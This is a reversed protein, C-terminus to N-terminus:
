FKGPRFERWTIKKLVNTWSASSLSIKAPSGTGGFRPYTLIPTTLIGSFKKLTVTCASVLLYRLNHIWFSGCLDAYCIVKWASTRLPEDHTGEGSVDASQLPLFRLGTVTCKWIQSTCKPGQSIERSVWRWFLDCLDRFTYVKVVFYETLESAKTSSVARAIENFFSRPPTIEQVFTLKVVFCYLAFFVSEAKQETVIPVVGGNGWGCFSKILLHFRIWGKCLSIYLVGVSM